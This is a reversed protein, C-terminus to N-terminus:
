FTSIKRRVAFDSTGILKPKMIGVIEEGREVFIINFVIAKFPQLQYKDMQVILM